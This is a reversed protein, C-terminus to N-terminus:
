NQSRVPDAEIATVRLKGSKNNSCCVEETMDSEKCGRPSYDALSKWGHSKWALISSHTTMEKELPDEQGLPRVWNEWMAPLSEVTQTMMSDRIIHMCLPRGGPFM